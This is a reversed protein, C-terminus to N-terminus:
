LVSEHETGVGFILVYLCSRRDWSHERVAHARPSDWSQEGIADQRLRFHFEKRPPKAYDKGGRGKMPPLREDTAFVREALDVFAGTIRATRRAENGSFLRARKERNKRYSQIGLM